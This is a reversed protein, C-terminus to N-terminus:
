GMVVSALGDRADGIKSAQNSEISDCVEEKAADTTGVKSVVVTVSTANPLWRVPFFVTLPGGVKTVDVNGGPPTASPILQLSHSVLSFLAYM